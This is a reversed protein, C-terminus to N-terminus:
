APARFHYRLFHREHSAPHCNSGSGVLILANWSFGDQNRTEAKDTDVQM